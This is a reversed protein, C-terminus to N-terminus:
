KLYKEFFDNLTHNEGDMTVSKVGSSLLFRTIVRRGMESNDVMVITAEKSEADYAVKFYDTYYQANKDIDESSSGDSFVFIFEGKEVAKAINEKSGKYEVTQAFTFTGIILAIMTMMITKM